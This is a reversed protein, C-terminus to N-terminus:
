KREKEKLLSELNRAAHYIKMVIIAGNAEDVQFFILYDWVLCHRFNTDRWRPYGNPFIGLNALKRWLEAQFYDISSISWNQMFYDQVEAFSTWFSEAL